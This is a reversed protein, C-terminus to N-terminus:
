VAIAQNHLALTHVNYHMILYSFVWKNTNIYHLLNHLTICIYTRLGHQCLVFETIGKDSM